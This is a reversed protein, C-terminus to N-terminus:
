RKRRDPSAAGLGKRYIIWYVFGVFGSGGVINGLTVPILNHIIGAITIASADFGAPVRGTQTLLWALPLFYMNAICHEFGAAVFASIPLILGVVKDTVSRGAYALWVALCVLLNCLVGKFFLTVVDPDIKGDATRLVSLGIRGGNMDAHHSLLVLAVLGLAGVLNGCYVILWNHLVERTSIRGSAWAMVILNNGTFLEAGGILVIVLGLSFVLGGVVRITAFSLDADSAVITYYLAGFGIGGGAVVALMFSPLFPMNAKKAGVKEIADQIEAPGYANFNFIPESSDNAPDAMNRGGSKQM